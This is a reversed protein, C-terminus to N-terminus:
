DNIVGKSIRLEKELQKVGEIDQGMEQLRGRRGKCTTHKKGMSKEM